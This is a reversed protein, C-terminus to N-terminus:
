QRFLFFLCFCVLLCRCFIALTRTVCWGRFCTNISIIRQNTETDKDLLSPLSFFFILADPGSNGKSPVQGVHLQM